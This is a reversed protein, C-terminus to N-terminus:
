PSSFQSQYLITAIKGELTEYLSQKTQYAITCITAM